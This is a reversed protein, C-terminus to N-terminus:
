PRAAVTTARLPSPVSHSQPAGPLAALLHEAIDEAAQPRDWAALAARVAELSPADDLWDLIRQALLEPTASKQELMLAAGAGAYARANHWQHNDAAAPYPILVAPLRLAALEALSSAGARNVAFTAAGMVLEMTDSFPQVLAGSTLAAHRDRAGAFDLAGTLHIFQLQPAHERLRPLAALFLNNIGRAGQSGGMVLLVPRDTALGLAHRCAAASRRQFQPRVPMGTVRVRRARLRAATEPFGVFAEDVLWALWRNARGPVTNAEHLFTRAGARRGALVPPASTFGGMALVGAPQSAHFSQRSARTAARFGRVFGLLNKGQLAVAPLTVVRMDFVNRVAAQDVDKPSVLLTVACGRRLLQEGVALGPFLHGGTGGCAIAFTRSPSRPPM